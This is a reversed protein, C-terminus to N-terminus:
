IPFFTALLNIGERVFTNGLRARQTALFFALRCRWRIIVLTCIVMAEQKVVSLFLTTFIPYNFLGM